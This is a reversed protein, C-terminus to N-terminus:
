PKRFAFTELANTLYSAALSCHSNIAAEQKRGDYVPQSYFESWNVVLMITRLWREMRTVHVVEYALLNLNVSAM